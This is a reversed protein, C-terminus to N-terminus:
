RKAGCELCKYKTMDIKVVSVVWDHQCDNWKLYLMFNIPYAGIGLIYDILRVM